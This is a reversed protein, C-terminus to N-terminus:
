DAHRVVSEAWAEFVGVAEERTMAQAAVVMGLWLGHRGGTGYIRWLGAPATVQGPLPALEGRELRWGAREEVKAWRAGTWRPDRQQQLVRLFGEETGAAEETMVVMVGRYEPFGSATARYRWYYREEVPVPPDEGGHLNRYIAVEHAEEEGSRRFAMPMRMEWGLFHQQGVKRLDEPRMELWIWGGVVVMGVVGVGAGVGKWGALAHLGWGVGYLVTGWGLSCGAIVLWDTWKPAADGPLLQNAPFGLIRYAAQLGEHNALLGALVAVVLCVVFHASGLVVIGIVSKIM